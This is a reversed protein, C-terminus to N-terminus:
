DTKQVQLICNGVESTPPVPGHKSVLVRGAHAGLYTRHTGNLNDRFARESTWSTM